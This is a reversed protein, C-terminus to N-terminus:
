KEKQENQSKKVARRVMIIIGAMSIPVSGLLFILTWRPFTDGSRDLLFGALLASAAVLFTLFGSGLIIRFVRKQYQKVIENQDYKENNMNESM